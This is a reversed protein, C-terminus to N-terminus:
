IEKKSLPMHFLNTLTSTEDERRIEVETKTTVISAFCNLESDLRPGSYPKTTAGLTRYQTSTFVADKESRYLHAIDYNEALDDRTTKPHHDCCHPTHHQHRDDQLDESHRECFLVRVYM